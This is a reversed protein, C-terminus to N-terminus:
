IPNYYHFPFILSVYELRNKFNQNCIYFFVHTLLINIVIVVLILLIRQRKIVNNKAKQRLLPRRLPDYNM